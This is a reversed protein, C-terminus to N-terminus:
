KWIESRVELVWEEDWFRSRAGLVGLDLRGATCVGYFPAMFLAMSHRWFAANITAIFKNFWFKHHWLSAVIRHSFGGNESFVSFIHCFHSAQLNGPAISHTM